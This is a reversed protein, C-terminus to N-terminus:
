RKPRDKAAHMLRAIERGRAEDDAMERATPPAEKPPGDAATKAKWIALEELNFRLHGGPTRWHPMGKDLYRSLTRREVGLSKAAEAASVSRALSQELPVNGEGHRATPRVRAAGQLVVGINGLLIEGIKAIAIQALQLWVDRAAPTVEDWPRAKGLMLRSHAAQLEQALQLVAQQM